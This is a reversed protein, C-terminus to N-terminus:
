IMNKSKATKHDNMTKILKSPDTDDYENFNELNDPEM